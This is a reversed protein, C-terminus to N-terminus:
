FMGSKSSDDPEMMNGYGNGTDSACIRCFRYETETPSGCEPCRIMGDIRHPDPKNEEDNSFVHWALHVLLFTLVVGFALFMFSHDGLGAFGGSSELAVIGDIM